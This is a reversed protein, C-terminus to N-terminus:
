AVGSGGYTPAAGAAAGEGSMPGAARVDEQWTGEHVESMPSEAGFNGVVGSGGITMYSPHLPDSFIGLNPFQPHQAYHRKKKM